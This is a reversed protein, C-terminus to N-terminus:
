QKFYLLQKSIYFCRYFYCILEAVLIYKQFKRSNQLLLIPPPLYTINMEYRKKQKNQKTQKNTKGKMKVSMQLHLTRHSFDVIEEMSIPKIARYSKRECM